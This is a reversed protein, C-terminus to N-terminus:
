STCRSRARAGTREWHINKPSFGCEKRPTMECTYRNFLGINLTATKSM